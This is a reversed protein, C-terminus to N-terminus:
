FTISVPPILASTQSNNIITMYLLPCPQLINEIWDISAFSSLLLHAGFTFDLATATPGHDTIGIGFTRVPFATRSSPTYASTTVTSLAPRWGPVLGCVTVTVGVSLLGPVGGSEGQGKPAM